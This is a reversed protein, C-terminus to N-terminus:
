GERGCRRGTNKKGYLHFVIVFHLLHWIWKSSGRVRVRAGVRARVRTRVRVGVRFGVGVRIRVRFRVHVCIM